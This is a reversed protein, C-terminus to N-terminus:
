RIVGGMDPVRVGFLSQIIGAVSARDRAPVRWGTLAFAAQHMNGMDIFKQAALLERVSPQWHDGSNLKGMNLWAVMLRQDLNLKKLLQEDVEVDFIHFRSTIPEPMFAGRVEPNSASIVVFGKKIPLDTGDLNGGVIYGRGDMASFLPTMADPPNRMSEDLYYPVGRMAARTLPSPDYVVGGPVSPDIRPRWMMDFATMRSHGIDNEMNDGFAALVLATKGCGPGGNLHIHIGLEALKRIGEVDNDFGGLKRPIYERGDPLTYTVGNM